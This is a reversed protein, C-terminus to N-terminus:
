RANRQPKVVYTKEDPQYYHRDAKYAGNVVTIGYTEDCLASFSHIDSPPAVIAFDGRELVRDDTVRLEAAGPVQGDDTREYTVHKIRGRYVSLTEWIGHDHPAIVKGKPVQFLLLSLQGDFYLYYSVAVNNGERPVGLALLDPRSMLRCLAPEIAQGLRVSDHGHEAIAAVIATACDRVTPLAAHASMARLEQDQPM